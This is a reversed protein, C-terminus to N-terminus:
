LKEKDEGLVALASQQGPGVQVRRNKWAVADLGAKLSDARTLLSNIDRLTLPGPQRVQLAVAVVQPARHNKVQWDHWGALLMLGGLATGVAWAFPFRFRASRAQSEPLPDPRLPQFTKLYAEFRSEELNSV